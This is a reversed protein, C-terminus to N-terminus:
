ITTQPFDLFDWSRTTLPEYTKSPFVSVVGDMSSLERAEQESLRAAFGNLSRKYSRLIRDSASSSDDLVQNLLDHHAFEGASIGGESESTLDPSPLHGLYVIYVQGGDDVTTGSASLSTAFAAAVAVLLPLLLTKPRPM